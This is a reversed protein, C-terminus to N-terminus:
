KGPPNPERPVQSVRYLTFHEKRGSSYDFGSFQDLPAAFAQLEALRSLFARRHADEVLALGGQAVAINAAGDGTTLRTGGGLRFLLSPEAYGAAVLPPDHPRGDRAVLGAVRESIWLQKLQPAVGMALAPYLVLACVGAMGLAAVRRQRLIFLIAGSGAAVGIISAVLTWPPSAADFYMPVVFPFLALAITGLAFQACALVRILRQWKSEPLQRDEAIWMAAMLALAPYAPLIYHPLKTPVLEFLVFSTAAWAILFRVAPENRRRWALDLAPILFLTAPWFTVSL